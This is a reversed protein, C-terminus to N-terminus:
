ELKGLHQLYKILAEVEQQSMQYTAGIRKREQPNKNDMHYDGLDDPSGGVVTFMNGELRDGKKGIAYWRRGHNETDFGYIKKDPFQKLTTPGAAFFGFHTKYQQLLNNEILRQVNEAQVDIGAAEFFAQAEKFNTM